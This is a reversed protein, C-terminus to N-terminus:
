MEDFGNESKYSDWGPLIANGAKLQTHFDDRADMCEDRLNFNDMINKQHSSFNYSTFADDWSQNREKLDYGSHWPQFLALMTSCYFKRDGQDHQPLTEGIFNPICAKDETVCRTGHTDILVHGKTFHFIGQKKLQIQKQDISHALPKDDKVQSENDTESTGTEGSGTESIDTEGSENTSNSEVDSGDPDSDDKVRCGRKPKMHLPLKDQSCLRIWDYLSLNDLERPHYVYDNVPSLGVINGKSKVLAV